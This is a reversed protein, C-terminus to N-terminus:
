KKGKIDIILSEGKLLAIEPLQFIIKGSFMVKKDDIRGNFYLNADYTNEGISMKGEQIISFRESFEEIIISEKSSSFALKNGELFKLIHQCLEKESNCNLDGSMIINTINLKESFDGTYEFDEAISSFLSEKKLLEIIQNNNKTESILQEAKQTNNVSDNGCSIITLIIFLNLIAILTKM